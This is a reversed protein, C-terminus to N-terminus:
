QALRFPILIDAYQVVLDAHQQNWSLKIYLNLVSKAKSISAFSSKLAIEVRGLQEDFKGEVLRVVDRLKQTNAEQYSARYHDCCVWKVRGNKTTM